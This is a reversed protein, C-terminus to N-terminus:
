AEKDALTRDVYLLQRGIYYMGGLLGFFIAVTSFMESWSTPQTVRNSLDFLLGAPSVLVDWSNWRLDRGIYIAFSCVALLAAVIAGASRAPLRKLLERHVLYLSSFGLLLGTFVFMTFMVADYLLSTAAVEQLHIFDSVLYFSNPLFLVWVLTLVLPLWDSWPRRQLMYVLGVALGLPIWALFLNWPLYSFAIEGLRLLRYGYFAACLLTSVLLARIVRRSAIARSPLTM